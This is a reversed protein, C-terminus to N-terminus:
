NTPGGGFEVVGSPSLTLRISVDASGTGASLHRAFISQASALIEIDYSGRSLTGSLSGTAPQFTTDHFQTASNSTLLVRAFSNFPSAGTNNRNIEYSIEYQVPSRVVFKLHSDGVAKGSLVAGDGPPTSPSSCGHAGM